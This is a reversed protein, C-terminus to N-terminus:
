LDFLAMVRRPWEALASLSCLYFCTGLGGQQIDDPAIGDAFIALEGEGDNLSEIETARVWEVGDFM